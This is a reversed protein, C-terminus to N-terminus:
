AKIKKRSVGAIGALGLGLLLMTSPEPVSESNVRSWTGPLSNSKAQYETKFHFYEGEVDEFYWLDYEAQDWGGTIPSYLSEFYKWSDFYTTGDLPVDYYIQSAGVDWEDVNGNSMHMTWWWGSDDNTLVESGSVLKFSLVDSFLVDGTYTDTIDSSFTFVGSLNNGLIDVNGDNYDYSAGTYTYTTAGSTSTFLFLFFSLSLFGIIKKM